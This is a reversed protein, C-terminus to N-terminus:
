ICLAIVTFFWMVYVIAGTLISDIWSQKMIYRMAVVAIIVYILVELLLM